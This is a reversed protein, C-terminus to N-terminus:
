RKVRKIKGERKMETYNLRKKTNRKHREKKKRGRIICRQTKSRQSVGESVIEFGSLAFHCKGFDFYSKAIVCVYVRVCTPQQVLVYNECNLFSKFLIVDLSFFLSDGQFTNM